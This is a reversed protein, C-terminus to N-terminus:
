LVGRGGVRAGREELARPEGVTLPQESVTQASVLHLASTGVATREESRASERERFPAPATGAQSTLRFVRCQSEVSQFSEDSMSECRANGHVCADMRRAATTGTTHEAPVDPVDTSHGDQEQAESHGTVCHRPAVLAVVLLRQTACFLM